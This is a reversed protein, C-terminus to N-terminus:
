RAMGPTAKVLSCLAHAVDRKIPPHFTSYLVFLNHLARETAVQTHRPCPVPSLVARCSSLCLCSCQESVNSNM